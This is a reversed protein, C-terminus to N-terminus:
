EGFDAIDSDSTGSNGSDSSDSGFDAGDSLSEDDSSDYHSQM